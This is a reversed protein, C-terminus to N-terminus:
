SSSTALLSLMIILKSIINNNNNYNSTWVAEMVGPKKKKTGSFFSGFFGTNTAEPEALPNTLTNLTNRKNNSNDNPNIPKPNIKENILTMARHGNLFDPHGTNIYCAEM